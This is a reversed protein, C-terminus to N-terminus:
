DECPVNVTLGASAIYRKCGVDTAAEAPRNEIAEPSAEAVQIAPANAPVSQDTDSLTVVNTTRDAASAKAVSKIDSRAKEAKADAKAALALQANREKAAAALKAKRAEALAERRKEAKIRALQRRKAIARQQALQRKRQAHLRHNYSQRSASYGRHSSFGKGCGGANAATTVTSFAIILATGLAIITKQM